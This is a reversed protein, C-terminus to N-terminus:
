PRAADNCISWGWGHRLRAPVDVEWAPGRAIADQCGPRRAASLNLKVTLRLTGSKRLCSALLGLFRRSLVSVYSGYAQDELTAERCRRRCDVRGPSQAPGARRQNPGSVPGTRLASASTRTPPRVADDEACLVALLVLHAARVRPGPRSFLQHEGPHPARQRLADREHGDGQLPHRPCTTVSVVLLEVVFGCAFAM